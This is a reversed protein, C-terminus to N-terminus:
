VYPPNLHTNSMGEDIPRGYTDHFTIAPDSDAMTFVVISLVPLIDVNYQLHMVIFMTKHTRGITPVVWRNDIVFRFSDIM